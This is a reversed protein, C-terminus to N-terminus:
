IQKRLKYVSVKIKSHPCRKKSGCPEIIGMKSLETMRPACSQREDNPILHRKFMEVSVEKVSMPEKNEKMINVIQNRLTEKDVEEYAENRCQLTIAEGPLRKEYDM